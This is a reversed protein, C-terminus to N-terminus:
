HKDLMMNITHKGSYVLYHPELYIRAPSKEITETTGQVDSDGETDKVASLRLSKVYDVGETNQLVQMVESLHVDRGFPWGKNEPGGRLPHFFHELNAIAREEVDGAREINKPVIEAETSVKIYGPGTVQIRPVPTSVLSALSREYLYNEVQRILAQGPEPKPDDIDPVIIVKVMDNDIGNVVPFCKSVAIDGPAEQILWEFDEATVARDRHKLLFPGREKLEELTEADKGGGAPLVNTVRDIYPLSVKLQTIKGEGVNGRVGGGTRYKSCYINDKGVPPVMGRVGDGFYLTGSSPDMVYHRDRPGSAYFNDAEHWRVRIKTVTGKEDREISVADEGEEALIKQLDDDAPIERENVWVQQGPLVPKRNFQFVQKGSGDSSGLLEDRVTEVNEAWVTNLRVERILHSFSPEDGTVCVRLWYLQQGFAGAKGFDEPGIFHVHGACSLNRTSDKVTLRSWQGEGVSYEWQLSRTKGQNEDVLFFISHSDNSFPADFGLYCADPEVQPSTERTVLKVPTVTLHESTEFVQEELVRTEEAAVQSGAPVWQDTDAGDSLTFLLLARAPAPPRLQAGIYDLFALFYKEPVRNLRTIIIEMLRAFLYVLATGPDANDEADISEGPKWEPCYYKALTFAQKVIDDFKRDDVPPIPVNM